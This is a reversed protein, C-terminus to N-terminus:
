CHCVNPEGGVEMKPVEVDNGVAITRERVRSLHIRGEQLAHIRRHLLTVHEIEEPVKAHASRLGDGEIAILNGALRDVEDVAIVVSRRSLYLVDERRSTRKRLDLHTLLTDNKAV